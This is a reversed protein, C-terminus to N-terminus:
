CFWHFSGCLGSPDLNFPQRNNHSQSRKEESKPCSIVIDWGNLFFSSLSCCPKGKSRKKAFVFSIGQISEWCNNKKRKHVGFDPFQSGSSFQPKLFLCFIGWAELDNEQFCHKSKSSEVSIYSLEETHRRPRWNLCEEEPLCHQGNGQPAVRQCCCQSSITKGPTCTLSTWSLHVQLFVEARAIIPSQSYGPRRVSPM